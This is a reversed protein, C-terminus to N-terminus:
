LGCVSVCFVLFGYLTSLVFLVVICWCCLLLLLQVSAKACIDSLAGSSTGSLVLQCSLLCACLIECALFLMACIYICTTEMLYDISCERVSM